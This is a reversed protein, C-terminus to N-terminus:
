GEVIGMVQETHLQWAEAHGAFKLNIYVSLKVHSNLLYIIKSAEILSGLYTAPLVWVCVCM